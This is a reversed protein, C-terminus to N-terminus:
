FMNKKELSVQSAHDPGSLLPKRGLSLHQATQRKFVNCNEVLDQAIETKLQIEYPQLQFDSLFFFCVLDCCKTDKLRHRLNKPRIRQIKLFCSWGHSIWRDGQVRLWTLLPRSVPNTAWM